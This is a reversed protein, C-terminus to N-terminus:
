INIKAGLIAKNVTNKLLVTNLVNNYTSEMNIEEVVVTLTNLPPTSLPLLALGSASNPLTQGRITSPSWRTIHIFSLLKVFFNINYYGTRKSPHM